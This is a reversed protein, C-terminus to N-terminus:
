TNADLLIIAAILLVLTKIMVILTQTSAVANPTVLILPVNVVTMVTSQRQPVDLQTIVDMLPVIIVMM